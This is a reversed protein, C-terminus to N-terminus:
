KRSFYDAADFSCWAKILLISKRLLADRGIYAIIDKLFAGWYVSSLENHVINVELNNIMVHILKSRWDVGISGLELDEGGNGSLISVCIGEIVRLFWKEEQGKCLFATIEIAERPLFNKNMCSGICFARAGLCKSLTKKLYDIVIKREVLSKHSPVLTRILSDVHTFALPLWHHNMSFDSFYNFSFYTPRILSAAGLDRKIVIKQCKQPIDYIEEVRKGLLDLTDDRYRQEVHTSNGSVIYVSRKNDDTM